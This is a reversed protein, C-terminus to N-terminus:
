HVEYIDISLYPNLVSLILNLEKMKDNFFIVIFDKLIAMYVKNQENIRRNSIIYVQQWEFSAFAGM